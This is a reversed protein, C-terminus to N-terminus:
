DSPATRVVKKAERAENLNEAQEIFGQVVERVVEGTLETAKERGPRHENAVELSLGRGAILDPGVKSMLSAMREQPSRRVIPPLGAKDFPDPDTTAFGRRPLTGGQGGGSAKSWHVLELTGDLEQRWVYGQLAWKTMDPQERLGALQAFTYKRGPVINM